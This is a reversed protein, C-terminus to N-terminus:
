KKRRNRRRNKESRAPAKLPKRSRLVAAPSVCLWQYALEGTVGAMLALLLSIRYFDYNTFMLRLKLSPVGPEMVGQVGYWAGAAAYFVSYTFTGFLLARAAVGKWGDFNWVAPLGFALVPYLPLFFRGMGWGVSGHHEMSIIFLFHGAMLTLLLSRASAKVPHGAILGLAGLAFVPFLSLLGYEAHWLYFGAKEWANLLDFPAPYNQDFGGASYGTAFVSGLAMMNLAPLIGLTPLLGLGFLIRERSSTRSALIFGGILLVVPIVLYTTVVSFALILGAALPCLTAGLGDKVPRSQWVAAGILIMAVAISDHYLVGSAAWWPSCLALALSLLLAQIWPVAWQRGLIFMCMVGLAGLPATLTWVLVRWVLREHTEFRWGLKVLAAYWPAALLFQGPAHNVRYVGGHPFINFLYRFSPTPTDLNEFVIDKIHGRVFHLRGREVLAEVVAGQLKFPSQELAGFLIWSFLLLGVATRVDRRRSSIETSDPTAHALPRGPNAVRGHDPKCMRRFWAAAGLARASALPGDAGVLAYLGSRNLSTHLISQMRCAM